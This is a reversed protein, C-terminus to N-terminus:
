SMSKSKALINYQTNPTLTKIPKIDWVGFNVDTNIEFLEYHISVFFDKFLSFNACTDDTHIELVIVPLNGAILKRGGKLANLEYGECDVKIFDVNSQPSFVDDLVRIEASQVIPKKLTIWDVIQLLWHRRLARGALFSSDVSGVGSEFGSQELQLYSATAGLGFNHPIVKHEFNLDSIIGTLDNFVRINPEFSYVTADKRYVADFTHHGWNSGIDLMVGRKPLYKEIAGYVDPEYCDSYEDFYISHFQSNTSRAKFNLGGIKANVPLKKNHVVLSFALRKFFINSAAGFYRVLLYSSSQLRTM